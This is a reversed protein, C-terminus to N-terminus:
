VRLTSGLIQEAEAVARRVIEGAPLVEHILGVSQGAFPLYEHGRGEKVAQVVAPLTTPAAAAVGDPDTRLQDILPSRLGRPDVEESPLTYPPLIAGSNVVKVTDQADAAVIMQKWEDSIAMETSTLFRTGMSVGSAGLALAAALGRGDVIGGAAAVPREGAIEVVQPVLVM